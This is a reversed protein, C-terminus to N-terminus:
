KDIKKNYTLNFINKLVKLLCFNNKMASLSFLKNYLSKPLICGQTRCYLVTAAFQFKVTMVLGTLYVLTYSVM